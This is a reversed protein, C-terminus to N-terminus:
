VESLEPFDPIDQRLNEPNINILDESLEPKSFSYGIKGKRSKNFILEPLKNM